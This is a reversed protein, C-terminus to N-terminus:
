FEELPGANIAAEVDARSLGYPFASTILRGSLSWTVKLDKQDMYIVGSWMSFSFLWKSKDESSQQAGMEAFWKELDGLSHNNLPTQSSPLLSM